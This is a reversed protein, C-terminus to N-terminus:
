EQLYKPPEPVRYLKFYEGKFVLISSRPIKPDKFPKGYLGASGFNVKDKIQELFYINDISNWWARRIHEELSVLTNFNWSVWYSLGLRSVILMTGDKPLIKRMEKLEKDCGYNMNSYQPTTLTVAISGFLILAILAAFIKRYYKKRITNFLFIALPTLVFYSILYLRQGWEFGLFPSALFLSVIISTVIFIKKTRGINTKIKFLVVIASIAVLNVFLINIIDPPSILPKGEIISFLIPENFIELPAKLLFRMRFPDFIYIASLGVLLLVAVEFLYRWLRKLSFVQFYKVTLLVFLFFLSVSFCGFHTTGTLVFFLFTLLYNKSGKEDFSKYVFLILCFLWLLGLSNKQYDSVLTFFSIYFISISAFLGVTYRSHKEGMLKKTLFYSPFISLTPVIADFIRAAYDVASSVNTGSIIMIIKAFLAELYFLLPFEKFALTGNEIISRAQVLYFAGVAGPM